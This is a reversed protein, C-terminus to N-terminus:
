GLLSNIGDPGANDGGLTVRLPFARGRYGTVAYMPRMSSNIRSASLASPRTVLTSVASSVGTPRTCSLYGAVPSSYIAHEAPRDNRVGSLTPRRNQSVVPIALNRERLSQINAASRVTEATGPTANPEDLLVVVVPHDIAGGLLRPARVQPHRFLISV